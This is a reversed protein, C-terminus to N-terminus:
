TDECQECPITTGPRSQPSIIQFFALETYGVSFPCEIFRLPLKAITSPQWQKQKGLTFITMNAMLSHDGAKLIYLLPLRTKNGLQRKM